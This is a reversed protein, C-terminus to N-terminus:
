LHDFAHDEACSPCYRHFCALCFSMIDKWWRGPCYDCHFPGDLATSGTEEQNLLRGLVPLAM